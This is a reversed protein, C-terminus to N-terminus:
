GVLEILAALPNQVILLEYLIILIVLPRRSSIASSNCQSRGTLRSIVIPWFVILFIYVLGRWCGLWLTGTRNDFWQIGNSNVWFTLVFGVAALLALGVSTCGWLLWQRKLFSLKM